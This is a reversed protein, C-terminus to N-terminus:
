TESVHFTATLDNVPHHSVAVLVIDGTFWTGVNLGSPRHTRVIAGSEAGDPLTGLRPVDQRRAIVVVIPKGCCNLHVELYPVNDATTRGHVDVFKAHHGPGSEPRHSMELSVGLTSQGLAKLDISGDADVYFPKEQPAAQAFRAIVLDELGSAAAAGPRITVWSVLAICAALGVVGIRWPRFIRRPATAIRGIQEWDLSPAHRLHEAIVLDVKREKEFRDTCNPCLRLHDSIEFTKTKGLESDLYPSLFRRTERCNM